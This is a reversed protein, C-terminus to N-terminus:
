HQMNQGFHNVPKVSIHLFPSLSQHHFRKGCNSHFDRHFDPVLAPKNSQFYVPESLSCMKQVGSGLPKGQADPYHYSLSPFLLPPLTFFFQSLVEIKMESETETM